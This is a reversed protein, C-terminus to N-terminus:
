LVKMPNVHHERDYARRREDHILLEHTAQIKIFCAEATGGGELTRPWQMSITCSLRTSWSWGSCHLLHGKHELYCSPRSVQAELIKSIVIVLTALQWNLD